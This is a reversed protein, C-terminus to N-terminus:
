SKGGKSRYFKHRGIQKYFELKKAWAPMPLGAAHYYCCGDVVGPLAGRLAARAIYLCTRWVAEADWSVPQLLKNYNPDQINFCSFQWPKLMVAHWGHGFPGGAAVRNAVVQAVAIKGM